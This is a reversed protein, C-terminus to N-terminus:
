TSSPMRPGQALPADDPWGLLKEVLAITALVVRTAGAARGPGLASWDLADRHCEVVALVDSMEFLTIAFAHTMTAHISLHLM